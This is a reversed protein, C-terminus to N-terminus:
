LNKIEEFFAHTHKKLREIFEQDPEKQRIFTAFRDMVDIVAGKVDYGEMKEILLKIKYMEDTKKADIDDTDELLKAFRMKLKEVPGTRTSVLYEKRKRVWDGKVSWLSVTKESIGLLESIERQTKGEKVYLREAEDYYAEFKSM